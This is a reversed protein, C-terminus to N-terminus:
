AAEKPDTTWREAWENIAKVMEGDMGVPPWRMTVDLDVATVPFSLQEKTFYNELYILIGNRDKRPLGKANKRYDIGIIRCIHEGGSLVVDGV